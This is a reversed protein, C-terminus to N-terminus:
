HKGGQFLQTIFMLIFCSEGSFPNLPQKMKNYPRFIKWRREKASTEDICTFAM